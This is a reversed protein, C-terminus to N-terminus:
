KFVGISAGYRHGFQVTTPDGENWSQCSSGTRHYLVFWPLYHLDPTLSKDLEPTNEFNSRTIIKLFPPVTPPILSTRMCAGM